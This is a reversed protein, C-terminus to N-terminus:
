EEIETPYAMGGQSFQQSSLAARHDVPRARLRSCMWGQGQLSPSPLFIRTRHVADISGPMIQFQRSVWHGNVNRFSVGIPLLRHRTARRVRVEFSEFEFPTIPVFLRQPKRTVRILTKM